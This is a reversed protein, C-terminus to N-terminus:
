SILGALAGAHAPMTWASVPMLCGSEAVLESFSHCQKCNETEPHRAELPHALAKSASASTAFQGRRSADSPVFSRRWPCSSQVSAVPRRAMGPAGPVAAYACPDDLRAPWGHTPMARMADIGGEDLVANRGGKRNAISVDSAMKAQAAPAVCQSNTAFTFGAFSPAILLATATITKVSQSRSLGTSSPSLWVAGAYTGHARFASFLLSPARSAGWCGAVCLRDNEM